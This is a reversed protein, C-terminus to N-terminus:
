ISNDSVRECKTIKNRTPFPTTVRSQLSHLFDNRIKITDYYQVAPDKGYVLDTAFAVAFVGCDFANLQQQVPM